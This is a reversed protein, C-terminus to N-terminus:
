LWCFGQAKTSRGHGESAGLAAFQRELREVLEANGMEGGHFEQSRGIDCSRRESCVLLLSPLFFCLLASSLSSDSTFHQLWFFIHMLLAYSCMFPLVDLNLTDYEAKGYRARRRYEIKFPLSYSM